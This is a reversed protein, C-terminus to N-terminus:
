KVVVKGTYENEGAIARVIYMGKALNDNEVKAGSVSYVEIMECEADTMVKNDAVYFHLTENDSEAEEVSVRGDVKAFAANYVESSNRNNWDSIFAVVKLQELDVKVNQGYREAVTTKFEMSYNGDADLTLADGKYDSMFVIPFDNHLWNSASAQYASYGSQTLVVNIKKGTMDTLAKGSVTVTLERNTVEYYSEINITVESPKSIENEVMETTMYGPHWVVGNAGIMNMREEQITRDMMCNPAGSVGFFNGIQKSEDITFIDNQYGYHHDIRAVRDEHGVIAALISEEGGPCYGCMQGTFKEILITRETTNAPDYLRINKSLTNASVNDTGNVKSITVTLKFGEEMMGLNLTLISSSYAALPTDFSIDKTQEEGDITYKITADTIDNFSKNAVNLAIEIEKGKPQWSGSEISFLQLANLEDPNGEVLMRIMLNGFQTDASIDGGGVGLLAGGTKPAGNDFALPYSGNDTARFGITMAKDGITMPTDFRVYNWGTNMTEITKEIENNPANYNEGESIFMTVDSLPACLYVALVSVENGEYPSLLDTSFHAAAELLAGTYSGVGGQINANPNCLELWTLEESTQAPANYNNTQPAAMFTQGAASTCIATAAILSFIFKKM